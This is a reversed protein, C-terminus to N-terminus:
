LAARRYLHRGGRCRRPQGPHRAGSAVGHGAADIGAGGAADNQRYRRLFQLHRPSQALATRRLRPRGTRVCDSAAHELRHRQHVARCAAHRFRYQRRRFLLRSGGTGHRAGACDRRWVTRLGTGGSNASLGHRRRVCQAVCRARRLEARVRVAVAAASHLDSRYLRRAPCARRRRGCRCSAARGVNRAGVGRLSGLQVQADLAQPHGTGRKDFRM